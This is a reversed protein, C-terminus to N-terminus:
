NEGNIEKLYNYITYRSINLKEAIFPISKQFSFAERDQLLSILKLRDEKNMIGLPKGTIRVCDEFIDNLRYDPSQPDTEEMEGSILNKITTDAISLYTYDFNICFTFHYEDGTFQLTSSKILRGDVTRGRYNIYDSKEFLAKSVLKKAGPLNSKDGVKRGTVHGNYITVIPHEMDQVDHVVTECNEGFTEAVSHAIRNLIHLADDKKM